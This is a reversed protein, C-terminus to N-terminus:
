HEVVDLIAQEVNMPLDIAVIWGLPTSITKTRRGIRTERREALLIL